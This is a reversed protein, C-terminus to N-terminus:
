HGSEPFYRDFRKKFAARDIPKNVDGIILEIVKGGAKKGKVLFDECPQEVMYSMLESWSPNRNHEAFFDNFSATIARYGDNSRTLVSM